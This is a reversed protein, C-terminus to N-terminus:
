LNKDSQFSKLYLKESALLILCIIPSQAVGLLWRSLTYEDNQLRDKVFYGYAMSLAALVLMVLYTYNLMKVIVPATNMKKLTIRSLFYFIATFLLTFPYKSYYLASYTWSEFPKMLVPMPEYEYTNISYYKAYMLRNTHVFFFERFYGAAAFLLLFFLLWRLKM